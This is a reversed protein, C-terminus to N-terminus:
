LLMILHLSEDHCTSKCMIEALPADLQSQTSKISWNLNHFAESLAKYTAEDVRKSKEIQIKDTFTTKSGFKSRPFYYMDHGDNNAAVKVAGREVMADLKIPGGAKTEAEERLM